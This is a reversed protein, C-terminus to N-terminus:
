LRGIRAKLEDRYTARKAELQQMDILLHTPAIPFPAAAMVLAKLAGELNRLLQVIEADTFLKLDPNRRPAAFRAAAEAIGSAVIRWVQQRDDHSAVPKSGPPLAQFAKLPTERWPCDELIVPLIAATGAGQAAQAYALEKQTAGSALFAKSVMFVVVPSALIDDFIREFYDEGLPIQLDFRLEVTSDDLAAVASVLLDLSAEDARAYSVFVPM